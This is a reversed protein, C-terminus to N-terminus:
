SRNLHTNRPPGSNKVTELITTMTDESLRLLRASTSPMFTPYKDFLRARWDRNSNQGHKFHNALCRVADLDPSPGYGQEACFKEMAAHKCQDKANMWFAVSDEWFHYFAIVVAKRVQYVSLHTDDISYGYVQSQDWLTRGEEDTEGIWAGGNALDNEYSEAENELNRIEAYLADRAARYGKQLMDLDRHFHYGRLIPGIKM